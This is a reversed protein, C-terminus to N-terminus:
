RELALNNHTEGQFATMTREAELRGHSSEEESGIQGGSRSQWEPGRRHEEIRGAGGPWEQQQQQQRHEELHGVQGFSDRPPQGWSPMRSQDVQNNSKQAAIQARLQDAYEANSRKRRAERGETAGEIWSPGANSSGSDGWLGQAARQANEKAAMQERLQQAYEKKANRVPGDMRGSGDGRPHEEQAGSAFSVGSSPPLTTRRRETEVASKMAIDAAMQERLQRAYEAKRDAVATSAAAEAGGPIGDHVHRQDQRQAPSATSTATPLREADTARQAAASDAQMQERLQKAYDANRRNAVATTPHQQHGSNGQEPVQLRDSPPLRTPNPTTSPAHVGARSQKEVHPPPDMLQDNQKYSQHHTSAHRERGSFSDDGPIASSHGSLVHADQTRGTDQFHVRPEDSGKGQKAALYQRRKEEYKQEGFCYTPSFVDLAQINCRNAQCSTNACGTAAGRLAAATVSKEM